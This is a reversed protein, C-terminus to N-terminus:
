WVVRGDARRLVVAGGTSYALTHLRGPEWAPAVSAAHADLLHDGTGDGAVVRLGSATLYAIRTDTFTGEWRPASPRLRALTWRVHGQPDLAVLENGSTAVVYLGHPSWEADAYAGLKRKLGDPGVVWVGGRDASVVLLR